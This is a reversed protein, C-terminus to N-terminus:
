THYLPILCQVDMLTDDTHEDIMGGFGIPRSYLIRPYPHWVAGAIPRVDLRLIIALRLVGDM